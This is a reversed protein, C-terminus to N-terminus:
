DRKSWTDHMSSQQEKVKKHNIFKRPTSVLPLSDIDYNRHCNIYPYATITSKEGSGASCIVSADESHACNHMGIGLHACPALSSESGTCGVNDLLIRGSGQGFRANGPASIPAGFGLQRCVVRADNMGWSDDCVTGWENNINVEVRGERSNSGGVLRVNWNGLIKPMTMLLKIDLCKSIRQTVAIFSTCLM